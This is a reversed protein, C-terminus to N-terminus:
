CASGPPISTRAYVWGRVRVSVRVRVWFPGSVHSRRTEIQTYQGSRHVVVYGEAVLFAYFSGGLIPAAVDSPRRCYPISSDKAVSFSCLWIRYTLHLMSYIASTSCLCSANYTPRICPLPNSRFSPILASSRTSFCPIQPNDQFSASLVWLSSDRPAAVEVYPSASGMYDEVRLAASSAIAIRTSEHDRIGKFTKIAGALLRRWHIHDYRRRVTYVDLDCMMNGSSFVHFRREPFLFLLSCLYIFTTEEDGFLGYMTIKNHIMRKKGYRPKCGGGALGYQVRITIPFSGFLLNTETSDLVSCHHYFGTKKKKKQM